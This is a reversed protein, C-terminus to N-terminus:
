FKWFLLVESGKPGILQFRYCFLVTILNRYSQIANIQSMWAIWADDVNENCSDMAWKCWIPPQIQYSARYMHFFRLYAIEWLVKSVIQSVETETMRIIVSSMESIVCAKQDFECDLGAKNAPPEHGVRAASQPKCIATVQQDRTAPQIWIVPPDQHGAQTSNNAVDLALSLSALMSWADEHQETQIPSNFTCSDRSPWPALLCFLNPLHFFRPRPSGSLDHKGCVEVSLASPEKSKGIQVELKLDKLSLWGRRNEEERQETCKLHWDVQKLKPLSSRRRLWQGWSRQVMASFSSLCRLNRTTTAIQVDKM